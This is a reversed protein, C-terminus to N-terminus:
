SNSYNLNPRLWQETTEIEQQKRQSYNKIQSQDIKGLSFYRSEPHAFYFGSVSAAPLMAMSETLTVGIEQANLLKFLTLKETHDPCAPYGPAPRIGKYQEKILDKAKLNENAQYGWYEKRVFLHMKEALAEALRDALAKALIANYDDLDEEFKQIWSNIEDGATVVFAGLYDTRNQNKPCIFDTLNYNPTNNKKETQQRLFHFTAIAQDSENYLCLDEEIRNAKFTGIIAKPTTRKNQVIDKLMAQADNFLKTAEVGVKKDSLINPYKGYLEWTSFFPTWDIFPVIEELSIDQYVKIGLNQPKVIPTTEWDCTFAKTKAAEFPLLSKQSQKDAFRDRLKQYETTIEQKFSEQESQQLLRTSVPVSRSADLVHIVTHSYFPSLKVATHIKSTTAGGILIPINLNQKEMEKVISQMVELSPTILGSLGILDVKEKIATEIILENSVMVGLDVIEFNNCALVVSVINKELITFM